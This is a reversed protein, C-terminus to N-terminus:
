DDLLLRNIKATNKDLRIAYSLEKDTGFSQKAWKKLLSWHMSLMKSRKRNNM